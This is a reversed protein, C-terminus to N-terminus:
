AKTMAELRQLIRARLRGRPPALGFLDAFWLGDIALRLLTAETEDIGDHTARKQWAQARDRLPQLLEPNMALAAVLSALMDASYQEEDLSAGLYARLWSGAAPPAEAHRRAVENEFSKTMIELMGTVLAEKTPFHYLVGGKSVGSERAVADLTLNAAGDRLVVRRACALLEERRTARM